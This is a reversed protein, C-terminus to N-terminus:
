SSEKPLPAWPQQRWGLRRKAPTTDIEPMHQEILATVEGVLEELVIAASALDIDFLKEIREALNDSVHHMQSIFDGMRKFQFTSYYLRNLGALVGLLNQISEVLIERRWLTSDRVGLRESLGWIPFFALHKEVMARALADPYAAAMAKWRAIYEDGYLPLCDLTGSLAKQLPTDVHHQELVTAMDREWAAITAHGVQCEVGGFVFSEAFAAEGRDGGLLRRDTGGIQERAQQLEEEAPLEDYYVTMDVDSYYDSHGLAASGTVMAARAKPNATYAYAIKRALSLLYESAETM